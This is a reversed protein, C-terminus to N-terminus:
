APLEVPTPVDEAPRAGLRATEALAARVAGIAAEVDSAEIGYHTVARITGALYEVMLVGRARLAALFAARDREVRFIVINTRVREPDLPGPTPQAIGGPSVIGDLEALGEALRRANAHDEALRGIMGDPGDSLAVLGAAALIGVQRMGGGVLKRARRARAIVERSGVVVSGVPCALGKSLCFTVTDAPGALARPDAGLAVVANWFRAGDVHLPVGRAHAIAAIEATYAVDLPQGMSHTHTNELAVLGTPPEHPDSPDRFAAAVEAPDLTGDPRERLQRVSTGAVVAHGAAEDMVIHSHYGAITEMGRGLHALQAVLNGMTGSAVFLGAEKGLLEAAREELAIVTPDDGFVDDGVEAEAMARRMAPTPRTVTDSRLDIAPM